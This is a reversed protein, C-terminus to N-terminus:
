EQNKSQWRARGGMRAIEKQREPNKKMLGRFGGTGKYNIRSKKQLQRYYESREEPTGNRIPETM